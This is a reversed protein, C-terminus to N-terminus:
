EGTVTQHRCTSLIEGQKHQLGVFNGLQDHSLWLSLNRTKPDAQMIEDCSSVLWRREPPTFPLADHFRAVVDRFATSAEPSLIRGPEFSDLFREIKIFEDFEDAVLGQQLQDLDQWDHSFALTRPRWEAVYFTAREGLRRVQETAADRRMLEGDVLAIKHPQEM